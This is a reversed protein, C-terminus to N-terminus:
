FLMEVVTLLGDKSSSIALALVDTAAGTALITAWLKGPNLKLSVSIAAIMLLVCMAVFIRVDVSVGSKLVIEWAGFCLLGAACLLVAVNFLFAFAAVALCWWNRKQKSAAAAKGYAKLRIPLTGSALDYGLETAFHSGVALAGRNSSSVIILAQNRVWNIP